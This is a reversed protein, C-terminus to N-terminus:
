PAAGVQVQHRGGSKARYLAEDARSLAQEMPEGALAAIGCSAFSSIVDLSLMRHVPPQLPPISDVSHGPITPHDRAPPWRSLALRTVRCGGATRTDKSEITWPAHQWRM